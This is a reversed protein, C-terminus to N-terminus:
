ILTYEYRLVGCDWVKTYGLEGMIDSETKSTDCGIKKLNFKNFNYRHLRNTFDKTYWYGPASTNKLNFGLTLYLNNINSSWRRDAFSYIQNPKHNTIFYQFLKSAGGVVSTNLKNCFRVLEWSKKNTAGIGIRPLGFTMISVLENNYYLGLKILSRDNGQLHNNNLFINKQKSPVIKVECKRAYIKKNQNFINRLKSKVIEKKNLWEDSFIQILKINNNNCINLKDIHYNKYKGMKESHWYLGNYEIALNLDPLYIDLELPKIIMRSNTIVNQTYQKIFEILEKEELSSGFYTPPNCKQCNPYFSIQNWEHNCKLCKFDYCKQSKMSKTYDPNLCIINHHQKIRDQIKIWNNSFRKILSEPKHWPDIISNINNNKIRKSASKSMQEKTSLSHTHYGPKVWDWHGKIYGNAYKNNKGHRLLTVIGGCGCKCLPHIGDLIYKVIYEDQSINKHKKTVHYMLQRNHMLSENCIGCKINSIQKVNTQKIVKIRFEGFQTIYEDTKIKHSWRLHMAM